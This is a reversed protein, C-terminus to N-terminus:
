LNELCINEIFIGSQFKTGVCFAVLNVTLQPFLTFPNENFVAVKKISLVLGFRVLYMCGSKEKAISKVYIFRIKCKTETLFIM